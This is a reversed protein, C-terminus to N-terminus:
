REEVISSPFPNNVINQIFIVMWVTSLFTTTNDVGGKKQSKQQHLDNKFDKNLKNYYQNKKRKM